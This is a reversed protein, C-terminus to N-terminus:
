EQERMGTSKSAIPHAYHKRAKTQSMPKAKAVLMKAYDTLEQKLTELRYTQPVDLSINITAQM